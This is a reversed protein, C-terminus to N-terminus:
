TNTEIVNGTGTNTTSSNEILAQTIRNDNGTVTITWTGTGSGLQAFVDRCSNKDNVFSIYKGNAGSLPSITVNNFKNQGVFGSNFAPETEIAARSVGDLDTAFRTRAVINSCNNRAMHEVGGIGQRTGNITVNSITCDVAGHLYVGSTTPAPLAPVGTTHTCTANVVTIRRSPSDVARNSFPPDYAIQILSKGNDLSTINSFTVDESGRTKFGDYSNYETHCTDVTGWRCFRLCIGDGNSSQTGLHYAGTRLAHNFECRYFSFHSVYRLDVTSFNITQNDKNGDFIINHVVINSNGTALNTATAYNVNKMVSANAGNIMKLTTGPMANFFTNNGINLTTDLWYTGAQAIYVYGGATLATQLATRNATAAGTDNPTLGVVGGAGGGVFTAIQSLTVHAPSGSVGTDVPIKQTGAPNVNNTSWVTPM